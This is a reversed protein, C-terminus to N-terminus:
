SVFPEPATLIQLVFPFRGHLPVLPALLWTTIERGRVCESLVGPRWKESMSRYSLTPAWRGCAETNPKWSPDGGLSQPLLLTPRTFVATALIHSSQNSSTLAHLMEDPDGLHKCGRHKGLDCTSLMVPLPRSTLRSRLYMRLNRSLLRSPLHLVASATRWLSGSTYDTSVPSLASSPSEQTCLDGLWQARAQLRGCCM